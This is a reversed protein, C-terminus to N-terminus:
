HDSGVKSQNTAKAYIVSQQANLARHKLTTDDMAIRKPMEVMPGPDRGLEVVIRALRKQNEVLLVAVAERAADNIRCNELRAAYLDNIDKLEDVLRYALDLQDTKFADARDYGAMWLKDDSAKRKDQVKARQADRDLIFRFVIPSYKWLVYGVVSIVATGGAGGGIHWWNPESEAFLIMM